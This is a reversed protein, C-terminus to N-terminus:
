RKCTSILALYPQASPQGNNLNRAPDLVILVNHYVDKPDDITIYTPNGTM